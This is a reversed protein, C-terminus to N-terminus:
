WARNKKIELLGITESYVFRMGDVRGASYGEDRADQILVKIWDPLEPVTEDTM